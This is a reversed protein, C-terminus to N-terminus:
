CWGPGLKGLPYLIPWSSWSSAPYLHGLVDGDFPQTTQMAAGAPMSHLVMKCRGRWALLYTDLYVDLTSVLRNSMQRSPRTYLM